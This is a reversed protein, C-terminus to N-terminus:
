IFVIGIDMLTVTSLPINWVLKLALHLLLYYTTGMGLVLKLKMSIALSIMKRYSYSFYKATSEPAALSISDM